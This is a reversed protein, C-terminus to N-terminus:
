TLQWQKTILAQANIDDTLTFLSETTITLTEAIPTLQIQDQLEYVVLEGQYIQNVGGSQQNIIHDWATADTLTSHAILLDWATSM